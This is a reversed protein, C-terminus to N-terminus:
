FVRKKRRSAQQYDAELQAVKKRNAIRDTADMHDIILRGDLHDTEHQWIRAILGEAQMEFTKGTV